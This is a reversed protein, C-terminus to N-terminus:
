IKCKIRSPKIWWVKHGKWSIAYTVRYTFDWSTDIMTITAPGVYVPEDLDKDNFLWVKDGVKYRLNENMMIM